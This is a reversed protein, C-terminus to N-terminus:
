KHTRCHRFIIFYVNKQRKINLIYSLLVNSFWYHLLGGLRVQPSVNLLNLKIVLKWCKYFIYLFYFICINKFLFFFSFMLRTVISGLIHLYIVFVKFEILVQHMIMANLATLSELLLSTCFRLIFSNIEKNYALVLLYRVRWTFNIAFISLEIAVTNGTTHISKIWTNRVWIFM